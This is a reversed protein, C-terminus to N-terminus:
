TELLAERARTIKARHASVSIGLDEQLSEDTLDNILMEGDIGVKRFAESYHAAVHPVTGFLGAIWVAVEESSWNKVGSFSGLVASIGLKNRYASMEVLNQYGTNPVTAPPVFNDYDGHENSEVARLAGMSKKLTQSGYDASNSKAHDELIIKIVTTPGKVTDLGALGQSSAAAPICSKVAFALSLFALVIGIAFSPRLLKLLVASWHTPGVLPAYLVNNPIENGFKLAVAQKAQKKTAFDETSYVHPDKSQDVYRWQGKFQFVCIKKGNVPHKTVEHCPNKKCRVWQTVDNIFPINRTDPQELWRRVEVTKSHELYLEVAKRSLTHLLEGVAVENLVRAWLNPQQQLFKSLQWTMDVMAVLACNEPAGGVREVQWPRKVFEQNFDSKQIPLRIDVDVYPKPSLRMAFGRFAVFAIYYLDCQMDKMLKWTQEDRFNFTESTCYAHMGRDTEYLRFTLGRQDAHDKVIQAAVEKPTGDKVDIDVALINPYTITFISARPDFGLVYPVTPPLYPGLRLRHHSISAKVWSMMDDLTKESPLHTSEPEGDRAQLWCKFRDEAVEDDYFIDDLNAEKFYGGAFM